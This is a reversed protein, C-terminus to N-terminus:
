SLLMQQLLQVFFRAFGVRRLQREFFLELPHGAIRELFLVGLLVRDGNQFSMLAVANV